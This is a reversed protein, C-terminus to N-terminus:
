DLSLEGVAKDRWGADNSDNDDDNGHKQNLLLMEKARNICM